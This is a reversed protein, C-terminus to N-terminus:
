KQKGGINKQILGEVFSKMDTSHKACYMKLMRHHEKSIILMKNDNNKM